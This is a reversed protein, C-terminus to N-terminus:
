GSHILFPCHHIFIPHEHIFKVMIINTITIPIDDMVYSPAMLLSPYFEMHMTKPHAVLGRNEMDSTTHAVCRTLKGEM